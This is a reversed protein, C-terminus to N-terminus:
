QGTGDHFLGRTFGQSIVGMRLFRGFFRRAFLVGCCDGEPFKAALLTAGGTGLGQGSFPALLNGLFRSQRPPGLLRLPEPLGRLWTITPLLLRCAMRVGSVSSSMFM